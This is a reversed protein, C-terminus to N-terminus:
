NHSLVFVVMRLGLRGVIAAIGQSSGVSMARTHLLLAGLVQSFGLATFAMMAAVIAIISVVFALRVVGGFAAAVFAGVKIGFRAIASAAGLLLM